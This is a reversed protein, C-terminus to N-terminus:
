RRLRNKEKDQLEILAQIESWRAHNIRYRLRSDKGRLEDVLGRAVLDELAEKVKSTKNRIHRELLWWEVIGEPTDQAGPNEILYKLIETIIQSKEIQCM